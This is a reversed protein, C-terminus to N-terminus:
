AAGAPAPARPVLPNPRAARDAAVQRRFQDLSSGSPDPALPEVTQAPHPVGTPAAQTAALARQEHAPLSAVYESAPVFPAKDDGPKRVYPVKKTVTKGGERVQSDRLEMPLGTRLAYDAFADPDYGGAVAVARATKDTEGKAVTAELEGARKVKAVIEDPKLGLATVKLYETAEAKPIVLDGAKPAKETLSTVQARLDAVTQDTTISQLVLHRIAAEPTNHQALLQLTLADAKREPSVPPVAPPTLGGGAPAEPSLFRTTRLM